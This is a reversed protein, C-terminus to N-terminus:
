GFAASNGHSVTILILKVDKFIMKPLSALTLSNKNSNIQSKLVPCLIEYHYGKANFTEILSRDAFHSSLPAAKLGFTFTTYQAQESIDAHALLPQFAIMVPKKLPAQM